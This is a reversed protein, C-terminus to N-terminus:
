TLGVVGSCNVLLNGFLPGVYLLCTTLGRGWVGCPCDTAFGSVRRYFIGTSFISAVYPPGISVQEIWYEWPFDLSLFMRPPLTIYFWDFNLMPFHFIDYFILWHGHVSWIFYGFWLQRITGFYLHMWSTGPSSCLDDPPFVDDTGCTEASIGRGAKLLPISLIHWRWPLLYVGM